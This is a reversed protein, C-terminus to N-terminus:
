SSSEYMDKLTSRSASPCDYSQELALVGELHYIYTFKHAAVALSLLFLSIM